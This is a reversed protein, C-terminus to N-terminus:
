CPRQRCRCVRMARECSRQQLSTEAPRRSAGGIIIKESSRQRLLARYARVCDELAAPYPHDPPMRYDVAWVKADVLGASIIGMARCSSGGGWLLAGGHIELYVAGDDATIGRPTVVLVPVGDADIQQAEADIQQAM